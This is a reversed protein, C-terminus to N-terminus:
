SHHLQKSISTADTKETTSRSLNAQAKEEDLHVAMSFRKWFQPDRGGAM